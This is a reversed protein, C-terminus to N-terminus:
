NQQKLNKDRQNEKKKDKIKRSLPNITLKEDISTWKDCILNKYAQTTQIIYQTVVIIFHKYAQATQIRYLAVVIIWHRIIQLATVTGMRTLAHM